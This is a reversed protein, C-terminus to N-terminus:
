YMYPNELYRNWISHTTTILTKQSILENCELQQIYKYLTTTIGNDKQPRCKTTIHGTKM